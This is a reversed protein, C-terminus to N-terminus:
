AIEIVLVCGAGGNGGRNSAAPSTSRAGGSGITVTETAGLGSTIYKIATGGAAGGATWASLLTGTAATGGGGGGFEGAGGASGSSGGYGSGGWFSDGGSAAPGHMATVSSTWTMSGGGTTSGGRILFDGTTGIGGHAGSTYSASGPGPAGAGGSAVAHTGFSSNGGNGGGYFYPGGGTTLGGGAGGGATVFVLAKTVGSSRTYTGSSTFFQVNVITGTIGSIAAIAAAVGAPTVARTTDTGTTAEATTALEVVGTVTESAAQKINGFATAADAVDTLNNAGLMDGTGAGPAGTDGKDGKTGQTGSLTIVWDTFTGSGGINTVNVTLSTGSYATVQGHMYNTEDADSAILLWNGVDFFKGSQTTFSKSGTAILTSTTSSGSMKAASAAANTEATEANTEATEAAAQAAQADAVADLIASSSLDAYDETSVAANGSGDFIMIKGARLSAIPLEMDTGAVDVAPITIARALAGLNEQIIMIARDYADEHKAGFYDSQNRFSDPQSVPTAGEVILTEGVAVATVTTISWGSRGAATLTISYQDAGAGETLTTAVGAANYRKVTLFTKNLVPWTATFPGTTNSGNFVSKRQALAAVTM